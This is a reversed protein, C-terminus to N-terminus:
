VLDVELREGLARHLPEHLSINLVDTPDFIVSICALVVDRNSRYKFQFLSRRISFYMSLADETVVEAPIEGESGGAEWVYVCAGMREPAEEWDAEREETDVPSRRVERLDVPISRTGGALLLVELDLLSV